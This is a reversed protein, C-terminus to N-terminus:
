RCGAQERAKYTSDVATHTDSAATVKEAHSARSLRWSGHYRRRAHAPSEGGRRQHAASRVVVGPLGAVPHITAAVQLRQDDDDCAKEGTM